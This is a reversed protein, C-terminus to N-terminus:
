IHFKTSIQGTPTSNNWTSPRISMCISHPVTMVFSITAKEYNESCELFFFPLILLHHMKKKWSSVGVLNDTCHPLFALTKDSMFSHRKTFLEPLKSSHCDKNAPCFLILKVAKRQLHSLFTEEFRRSNYDSSMVIYGPHNCYKGSRKNLTHKM